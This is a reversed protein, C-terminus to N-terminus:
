VPDCVYAAANWVYGSDCVNLCACGPGVGILEHVACNNPNAGCEARAACRGNTCDGSLCDEPGDCRDGEEGVCVERIPHCARSRCHENSRCEELALRSGAAYCVPETRGDFAECFLNLACADLEHGPCCAAGLPQVTPTAGCEAGADSRTGADAVAADRVTADRVAADATTGPARERGDGCGQAALLSAILITHLRSM